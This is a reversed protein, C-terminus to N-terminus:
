ASKEVSKRASRLTIIAVGVMTMGGGLWMMPTVPTGYWLTVVVVSLVPTALTFPTIQTVPFRQVLWALGAHGVLSAALSSYVVWGFIGLPVSGLGALGGPELWVSGLLLLPISVVAQWAYITLVSIGSLRKLLLTSVAWCASAAFTLFVALREDIIRPDFVLTMVGAIALVIGLTRRWAIREGDILVALMLSLPVGLQGAIALASLNHAVRFAVAGLGFQLAGGIVGVALLLTMRGPVVKLSMACAVLLVMYRLAVALLPPIVVVTERIAVMNIAWLINILLIFAIFRAPIHEGHPHSAANM